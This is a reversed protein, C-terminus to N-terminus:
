THGIFAISVVNAIGNELESSVLNPRITVSSGNQQITRTGGVGTLNNVYVNGGIVKFPIDGIIALTSVGSFDMGNGYIMGVCVTGAKWYIGCNTPLDRVYTNNDYLKPTFRIGSAFNTYVSIGKDICM